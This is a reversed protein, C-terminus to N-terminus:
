NSGTGKYKELARNMKDNEANEKLRSLIVAVASCIAFSVFFGIWSYIDDIPFWGFVAAFIMITVTIAVFFIINRVIMPMSKILKDSFLINRFIYIILNLGFLEALTYISLGRNGFEFITSFGQAEDGVVAAIIMHIVVIIGFSTFLEALLSFITKKEEM